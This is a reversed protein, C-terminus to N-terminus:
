EISERPKPEGLEDGVVGLLKLMDRPPQYAVVARCGRAGGVLMAQPVYTFAPMDLCGHTAVGRRGTSNIDTPRM